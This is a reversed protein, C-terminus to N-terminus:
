KVKFSNNSAGSVEFIYNAQGGQQITKNSEFGIENLDTTYKSHMFFYNKELTHIHTLATQAEMSKAKSILPMLSPLAILAVIGVIALAVLVETLSFGKVKKRIYKKHNLIKM